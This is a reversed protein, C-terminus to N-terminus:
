PHRYTKADIGHRALKDYLTKRPILLLEMAKAIDGRTLALADKIASAEFKEVRRPLSIPEESRLYAGDTDPLGLVAGFTFNRLERVNGPWDHELLHRRIADDMAFEEIGMQEKAAAVFYSFLQPVDARHERLPPLRLRVVNLRYYLDERFNGTHSAQGLDSKSAAIVRLNVPRPENAGIPVVEREEIVRLLNAQVALSM